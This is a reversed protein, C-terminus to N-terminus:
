RKIGILVGDGVTLFLSIIREDKSIEHLFDDLIKAGEVNKGKEMNALRLLNGNFLVNDFIILGDKSLFEFSQEFYYPYERKTGDIFIINFKDINNNKLIFSLQKSSFDQNIIEVPINKSKVFELGRVYRKNEHEFSILKKLYNKAGLCMSYSSFGSGYGIELIYQPKILYSLFFLLRAIDKDICPIKEEIRQKIFYEEEPITISNLNMNFIYEFLNRDLLM